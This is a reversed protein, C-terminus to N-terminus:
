RYSPTGPSTACGLFGGVRMKKEESKQWKTKSTPSLTFFYRVKGYRLPLYFKSTRTPWVNPTGHCGWFYVFQCGHNDDDSDNEISSGDIHDNVVTKGTFSSTSGKEAKKKQMKERQAKEGM